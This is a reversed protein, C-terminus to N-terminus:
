MYTQRVCAHKTGLSILPPFINNHVVTHTSPVSGLDKALAVTSKVESDVM